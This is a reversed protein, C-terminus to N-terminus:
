RLLGAVGGPRAVRILGTVRTLRAVAVAAVAVAAVVGAAVVGTGVVRAPVIGGLGAVDRLAVRAVVVRPLAAVRAFVAVQGARVVAVGALVVGPVVGSVVVCGPMVLRLGRVVPVAPRQPFAGAIMPVTVGPAPVAVYILVLGPPVLLVVAAEQGPEASVRVVPTGALLARGAIAPGPRAAAPRVPRTAWLGLALAGHATGRHPDREGDQHDHEGDGAGTEEVDPVVVQVRRVVRARAGAVDHDQDLGALGGRLDALLQHVQAHDRAHPGEGIRRLRAAVAACELRAGVPQVPVHSGFQRDRQQQSGGGPDLDGDG